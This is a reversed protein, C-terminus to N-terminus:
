PKLCAELVCLMGICMKHVYSINYTYKSYTMMGSTRRIQLVWINEINTAPIEVAQWHLSCHVSYLSQLDSCTIKHLFNLFM